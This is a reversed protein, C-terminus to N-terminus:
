APQSRRAARYIRFREIVRDRVNLSPQEILYYSAAGVVMFGLWNGPFRGLWPMWAFLPGNRENLFLTQWLYISYSLVGLKVMPWCNLFRGTLTEANRTCWLLFMAIAFGSLTFGITLDFYNLFRLSLVNCLLITALPVWWVRTCARYVAEFRPTHQLLAVLCGFMIFDFKFLHVSWGHLTVDQSKRLAVRAVPSLVMVAAPFWAAKMRGAVGRTRLCYVLVFPWVLYFQEELSISWLHEFSWTLGRTFNRFFFASGWVDIWYVRLIGFHALLVVTSIYLYLPPLIRFARRVYFGSLSVSGRKEAEKLLLTTILFGSIEFFTYVGAAGNFIVYLSEPVVGRSGLTQLTHLGVVLLISVARLGDLSPIRNLTASRPLPSSM